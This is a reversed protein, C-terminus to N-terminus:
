KKIINKTYFTNNNADLLKLIYVGKDFSNFDIANNKSINENQFIKKGIVNYIEIKSIASVDVNNINIYKSVPNPFISVDLDDIKKISVNATPEDIKAVYTVITATNISDNYDYILLKATGIGVNEQNLFHVDLPKNKTDLLNYGSYDVTEDKCNIADCVFVDSIWNSPVDVSYLRWVISDIPTSTFHFNYVAVDEVNTDFEAYVSDEVVTLQAFTNLTLFLSLILLIKKM